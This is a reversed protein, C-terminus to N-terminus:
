GAVIGGCSAIPDFGYDTLVPRATKSCFYGKAGLIPKLYAPISKSGRVVDFLLRTFAKAFKPNLVTKAGSGITPPTGNVSNLKLPGNVDCGFQRIQATPPRSDPAM